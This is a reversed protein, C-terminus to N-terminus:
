LIELIQYDRGNFNFAEKVKRGKLRAGIPSATSVAMYSRGEMGITGASVSLYFNGKDTIVVSGTDAIGSSNSTTGIQNLASMQKGAENLLALSRDKEQQMMARGTEYKDGASSKTEQEAAQQAENIAQQANDMRAKVAAM